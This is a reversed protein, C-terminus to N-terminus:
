YRNGEAYDMVGYGNRLDKAFEGDYKDGNSMDVIGKGDRM